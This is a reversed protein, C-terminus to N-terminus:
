FLFKMGEIIISNNVLLNQTIKLNEKNNNKLFFSNKNEGKNSSDFELNMIENEISINEDFSINEFSKIDSMDVIDTDKEIIQNPKYFKNEELNKNLSFQNKKIKGLPPNLLSLKDFNINKFFKHNKLANMNNNKDLNDGSGLRKKPDKELLGKIINKADEDLDKRIKFDNNKIKQFIHFNNKEKFPSFGHFFFYIICGWAWLDVAPSPEEGELTEPSIYEPTGIIENDEYFDENELNEEYEKPKKVFKKKNKDFIMDKITATAFDIQIFM